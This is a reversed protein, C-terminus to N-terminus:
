EVAIGGQFSITLSIWFCRCCFMNCVMEGLDTANTGKLAEFKQLIQYVNQFMKWAFIEGADEAGNTLKKTKENTFAMPDKLTSAYRLAEIVREGEGVELALSIPHKKLQDEMTKLISKQKIISGPSQPPSPFPDRSSLTDLAHQIKVDNYVENLPYAGVLLSTQCNEVAVEEWENCLSVLELLTQATKPPICDDTDAFSRIHEKRALLVQGEKTIVGYGDFSNGSRWNVDGLFFGVEYNQL